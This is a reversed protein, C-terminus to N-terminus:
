PPPEKEATEKAKLEANQENLKALEKRCEELYGPQVDIYMAGPAYLAFVSHTAAIIQFKQQRALLGWLEAQRPISLSRGPEDFLLTPPGDEEINAKLAYTARDIRDTGLDNLGEKPVGWEVETTKAAGKLIRNTKVTTQEGSSTARMLAAGIGEQMFDYDFAGGFIGVESGPDLYHVPKGDTKIRVGDLWTKDPGFGDSLESISQQTVKPVGGQECHTLRALVKLLTSKGSGNPGWLITLGKPNFEFRERGQYAEIKPWWKCPTREPDEVFLETIM